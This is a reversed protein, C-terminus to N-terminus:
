VFPCRFPKRVSESVCVMVCTAVGRRPQYSCFHEVKISAMVKELCEPVFQKILAIFVTWNSFGHSLVDSTTTQVIIVKTVKVCGGSFPAYDGNPRVGSELEDDFVGRTVRVLLISAVMMLCLLRSSYSCLLLFENFINRFSCEVMHLDETEYITEVPDTRYAIWASLTTGKTQCSRNTSLVHCILRFTTFLDKFSLGVACNFVLDVATDTFHLSAFCKHRLLFEFALPLHARLRARVQACLDATTM